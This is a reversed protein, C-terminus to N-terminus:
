KLRRFIKGPEQQICGRIELNLLAHMAEGPSITSGAKGYDGSTSDAVCLGDPADQDQAKQREEKKLSFLLEDMSLPDNELAELIKIEAPSLDKPMPRPQDSTGDDLDELKGLVEEMERRLEALIDRHSTMLLAGERILNNTGMSNVRTIDGPVAFVSRNEELAFGATILTGSNKGAEMVAVGLSLGAIISNRQPFSGPDPKADMPCESILAGSEIVQQALRKHMSPYVSALGNGLVALTRGGAELAAKHAEGDGGLALGSVITVGSEALRGAIDHTVERGYRSMKRAGIIAVAAQDIEKLSGKYYLLPPPNTTQKLNVPYIPDNLCVLEVGHQEVKRLEADVNVLSKWRLISEVAMKGISDTQLLEQESADLVADACGFKEILANFRGRGIDPLMSLILWSRYQEM